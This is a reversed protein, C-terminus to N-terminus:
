RLLVAVTMMMTNGPTYKVEHSVTRTKGVCEMSPYKYLTLESGDEVPSDDWGFLFVERPSRQEFAYNTPTFIDASACEECAM